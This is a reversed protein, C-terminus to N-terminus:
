QEQWPVSHPGAQPRFFHFSSQRFCQAAQEGLAGGGGTCKHPVCSLCSMGLQEYRLVMDLELIEM